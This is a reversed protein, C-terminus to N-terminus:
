CLFILYLLLFKGFRFGWGDIASAFVVNGHEPAFYIESDDIDDMGTSWDYVHETKPNSNPELDEVKSSTRSRQGYKLADKEMVESTLLEAMVANIKELLQSLHVYADLPALKMELILRDVKNLVLVPKIGEQWAQRLSVQLSNVFFKQLSCIDPIYLSIFFHVLSVITQACVGEVVDVVILAGDCLRVATSVETSFDVHGPSDVLNVLYEEKEKYIFHLTIASSKMTIGREQEDKRSDM